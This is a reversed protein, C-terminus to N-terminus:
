NDYISIRSARGTFKNKVLENLVGIAKNIHDKQKETALYEGSKPRAELEKCKATFETKSITVSCYIFDNGQMKYSLNQTHGTLPQLGWSISSYGKNFGVEKMLITVSNAFNDVSENSQLLRESKQDAAYGVQVQQINQSRLLKDKPPCGTLLTCAILLLWFRKM